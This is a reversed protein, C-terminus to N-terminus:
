HRGVYPVEYATSELLALFRPSFWKWESIKDSSTTFLLKNDKLVGDILLQLKYPDGLSSPFGFFGDYANEIYVIECAQYKDIVEDTPNGYHICLLDLWTYSRADLGNLLLGRLVVRGAENLMNSSSYLNVVDYGNVLNTLCEASYFCSTLTHKDGFYDALRKHHLQRNVGREMLEKAVRRKQQKENEQM